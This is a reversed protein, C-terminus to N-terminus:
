ATERKHRVTADLQGRALRVSIDDGLAVPDASRLVNGSRDYAIAYGRELLRFPSREQLQLDATKLKDRCSRLARDIRVRLETTGRELSHRLRAVRARLDISALLVRTAALERHKRTLSRELAARLSERQQEIRRRLIAARARLDFSSIQASATTVRQRATALKMRLAVALASSLEDVQQNRRRVLAEIQRFGRHGQLDRLRHKRESLFYRMGHALRRHHESIHREFERRSRVVLEAAASPTAARVDAVFDAITFDVEHGIGTIVPIESAAIARAVIEENFTWLDELSGGGRAIILVEAFKVRNFYRVGAAVENAAGDGQVKVPYVQVYLNGFRRKLVRVIDRIAAGSPSTVIGICRPLVPLPRKRADDFLGEEQLKQKLQEFAFQLAGLGVPEVYRVYIQYEGRVEYVGLSGRVTIHLGDAPKCKLTRAQDRFCVCRIQSRADKLTFYIHGSPHLRCNSVEGELWVDPFEGELLAGIRDTLESVKWVRRQPTLDFLSAQSM